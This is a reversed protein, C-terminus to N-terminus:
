LSRCTLRTSLRIRQTYCKLSRFHTFCCCSKLSEYVCFYLIYFDATMYSRVAIFFSKVLDHESLQFLWKITIWWKWGEFPASLCISSSKQFPLTLSEAFLVFMSFIILLLWKLVRSISLLCVVFQSFNIWPFCSFRLLSLLFIHCKVRPQELGWAGAVHQSWEVLLLYAM